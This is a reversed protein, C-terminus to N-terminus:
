APVPLGGADIHSRASAQAILENPDAGTTSTPTGISQVNQSRLAETIESALEAATAPGTRPLAILMGDRDLDFVRDSGRLTHRVAHVIRRRSARSQDPVDLHIVSLRRGAADTAALERELFALAAARRSPRRRTHWAFGLLVALALGALAAIYLFAQNQHSPLRPGGYSQQAAAAAHGFTVNRDLRATGGAYSISAQVRYVTGAAPQQRYAAVPFQISSNTVFTGPAIASGAVLRGNRTVTVHGTVNKLIVNGDNRAAVRFVVGAPDRSVRAGTLHVSPHRPGPLSVEVGVAYRYVEGLSLGRPLHGTPRSAAPSDQGLVEVAIGSLYDGPTASAPTSVSVNIRSQGHPAIKVRRQSLQLWATAADIRGGRLAYASGLTDTTIGAVPDVRVIMTRSTSNLLSLYGAKLSVGRRSNLQFYPSVLGSTQHVRVILSTGAAPAAAPIAMVGVASLALAAIRSRSGPRAVRRPGRFATSFM